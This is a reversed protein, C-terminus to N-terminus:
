PESVSSSTSRSWRFGSPTGANLPAIIPWMRSWNVTGIPTWASISASAPVMVRSSGATTAYARALPRPAGPWDPAFFRVRGTGIDYIAGVLRMVDDRGRARAEPSDLIHRLTLRVNAEVGRALQEDPTLQVDVEDDADVAPRLRGAGHPADPGGSM